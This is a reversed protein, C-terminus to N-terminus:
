EKKTRLVHKQNGNEYYGKHVGNLEGSTSSWTEEKSMKGNEYYHKWTGVMNGKDLKGERKKNGNEYFDTYAGSPEDNAFMAILSAKGNPFYQTMKGTKVGDKHTVEEKLTGNEYYSKSVGHQKGNLFASILSAQGNPYYEAYPGNIVGNAYFEMSELSGDERFIHWQGDRENTMTHMGSSKIQGNPYRDEVESITIGNPNSGTNSGGVNIKINASDGGQMLKKLAAEKDGEDIVMSTSPKLNKFDEKKVKLPPQKQSFASLGILVTFISSAVIKKM